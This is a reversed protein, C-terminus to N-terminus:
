SSLVDMEMGRAVNKKFIEDSWLDSSAYDAMNRIMTRTIITPKEIFFERPNIKNTKNMRKVIIWLAYTFAPKFHKGKPIYLIVSKNKKSFISMGVVEQFGIIFEYQWSILGCCRFAPLRRSSLQRLLYSRDKQWKTQCERNKIKRHGRKTCLFRKDANILPHNFLKLDASVIDNKHSRPGPAAILIRGGEKALKEAIKKLNAPNVITFSKKGTMKSM